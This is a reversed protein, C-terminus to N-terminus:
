HNSLNPTLGLEPAQPFTFFRVFNPYFCLLPNFIPLQSLKNNKKLLKKIIFYAYYFFLMRIQKSRELFEINTCTHICICIHTYTYLYAYM